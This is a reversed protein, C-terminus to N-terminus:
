HRPIAASSRSKQVALATRFVAIQMNLNKQDEPNATALAKLETDLAKEYQGNAYYAQALTDLIFARPEGKEQSVAKQAYMLAAAPDKIDPDSSTAMAWAVNNLVEPSGGEAAKRYWRVAQRSDKELGEEGKAYLDAVYYQSEPDGMEAAKRYADFSERNRGVASYAHGLDAECAAENKRYRAAAELWSLAELKRDAKLADYGRKCEDYSGYASLNLWPRVATAAWLSFALLLASATVLTVRNEQRVIAFGTMIGLVAGAGHAVNGVNMFNTVTAVICLFFWGIFLRVTRTDIADRFREDHRSLVWLLGFMAYGVGSLGVGGTSFAYELANPVSAFLLILAATRLHGFTRELIAGFTWLWYVNFLLHLVGIHPLISTVLRWLEGHRIMGNEELGSVDLGSASAITVGIALLVTGAIVPYKPFETWKSPQLM